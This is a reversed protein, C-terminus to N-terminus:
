AHTRETEVVRSLFRSADMIEQGNIGHQLGPYEHYELATNAGLWAATREVAARAIVRDLDGRGWFVPVDALKADGPHAVAQVFGGLVVAAPVREPRTRLLETAMLGGQSFGLPIVKRGAPVNADVWAWLETVGGAVDEPRPNGPETIPFWAYGAGAALPARLSAWEMGQPLYHALGSLDRENSGFGHLLLLLPDTSAAPRNEAATPTLATLMITNVSM